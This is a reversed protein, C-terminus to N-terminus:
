RAPVSRGAPTVPASRAPQRQQYALAMLHSFRAARHYGPAAFRACGVPNPSTLFPIIPFNPLSM